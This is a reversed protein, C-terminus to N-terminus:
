MFEGSTVTILWIFTDVCGCVARKLYIQINNGEVGVKVHYKNESKRIFNKDTTMQGMSRVNGLGDWLAQHLRGLLIHSITGNHVVDGNLAESIVQYFSHINEVWLKPQESKFTYEM